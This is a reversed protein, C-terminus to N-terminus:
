EECIDGGENSEFTNGSIQPNAEWTAIGCLSSYAIYNNTISVNGGCENVTVMGNYYNGGGYMIQCNELKSGSRTQSAFYIGTWDGPSPTTAASTFVVPLDTTGQAVLKGFSDEGVSLYASPGFHLKVGANLTLEANEDVILGEEILYPAEFANWNSVGKVNGYFVRIGSGQDATITNSAGFSTISAAEAEVPWTGCHSISNNECSVFAGDYILHAGTSESHRLTCHNMKLQTNEVFLLAYTRNNGGYEITCWELETASSSNNSYFMLGGWDGAAPNSSSSTFRIPRTETGIAKLSAYDSYGFELSADPGFCITVSDGIVLDAVVELHEELYYPVGMNKWTNGKNMGGGAYILIGKNAPAEIKNATGMTGVVNAHMELPHTGCNLLHNNNFAIFESEDEMVIASKSCDSIISSELKLKSDNVILTGYGGAKSFKCHRFNTKTTNTASYLYIAEWRVNNHGTFTIPEDPTGVASISGAVSYGVSFGSNEMFKVTTGPEIVLDSEIDVIGEVIWEKDSTWTTPTDIVGSVSGPPTENEDKTCTAFLTIAAVVIALLQKTKM